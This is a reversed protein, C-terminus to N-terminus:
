ESKFGNNSFLTKLEIEINFDEVASNKIITGQKDLLIYTPLVSVGYLLFADNKSGKLDSVNTWLISDKKVANEFDTKNIDGSVGLIEFGKPQYLKYLKRLEKHSYRCPGCGSAWFEILLYKGEFDSLEITKGELTKQSFNKAKQGLLPTDSLEAYSKIEMAKSTSKIEPALKEYLEKIDKKTLVKTYTFCESQLIHLSVYSNNHTSVFEKIKEIRVQKLSDIKDELLRKEAESAINKQEQITEIKRTNIEITKSYEEFEFQSASGEIKLKSLFEFNGSIKIKAPELWIIKRDRFDYQNRKNFLMFMKPNALEFEVEFLGNKVNIKIVSGPNETDVLYLEALDPCNELSGWVHCINTAAKSSFALILMSIFIIIRM